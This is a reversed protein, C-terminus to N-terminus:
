DFVHFAAVGNYSNKMGIAMVVGMFLLIAAFYLWYFVMLFKMFRNKDILPHRKEQLDANKCILKYLKYSKM